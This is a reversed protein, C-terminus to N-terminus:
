ALCLAWLRVEGGCDFWPPISLLPQPGRRLLIHRGAAISGLHSQFAGEVSGRCPRSQAAISGLHSQFDEAGSALCGCGEPRLRVLTPNFTTPSPSGSAAAIAAISGLHSQFPPSAAESWRRGAAAISGLHSQFFRQQWKAKIAEAQRLRVLTPNFPARHGPLYCDLARRLRVM